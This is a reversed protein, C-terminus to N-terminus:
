SRPHNTSRRVRQAAVELLGLVLNPGMAAGKADYWSLNEGTAFDYMGAIIRYSGPPAIM